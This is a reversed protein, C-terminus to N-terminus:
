SHCLSQKRPRPLFKKVNNWFEFGPSSWKQIAMSFKLASPARSSNFSWSNLGAKGGKLGGLRGLAVAAPNKGEATAAQVISAALQNIDSKSKSSRNRMGRNHCAQASLAASDARLKPNRQKQLKSLGHALPSSDQSLEEYRRILARSEAILRVTTDIANDPKRAM